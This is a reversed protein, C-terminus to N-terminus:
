QVDGGWELVEVVEIGGGELAEGGEQNGELQHTLIAVPELLQLPLCNTEEAGGVAVVDQNSNTLGTIGGVVKLLQEGEKEGAAPSKASGAEKAEGGLM